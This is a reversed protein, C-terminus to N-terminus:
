GNNITLKDVNGIQINNNGHQNFVFPNNVTQGTSKTYADETAEEVYPEGCDSSPENEATTKQETDAIATEIATINISRTISDGIRSIFRWQQGRLEPASHWQEFTSRGVTNDARHTVIFHWVGLLLSQLCIDELIRFAAKGLPRGNTCIYFVDEDTISKDTEILELLAKTLQKCKKMNGIDVFSDLFRTMAALAKQFDSIILTDFSAIYGANNFPLYTSSAIGCSKYASTNQGFTSVAPEKYQPQAVRILGILMDTDSLGDSGGNDRDRAKLRQKKAQLLLTFFTGGCLRPYDSKAM